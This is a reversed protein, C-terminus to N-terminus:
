SNAIACLVARLDYQASAICGKKVASDLHAFHRMQKDTSPAGFPGIRVVAVLCTELRDHVGRMVTGTNLSHGPPPICLTCHGSAEDVIVVGHGERFGRELFAQLTEAKHVTAQLPLRGALREVFYRFLPRWWEQEGQEGCKRAGALAAVPWTPRSREDLDVFHWM